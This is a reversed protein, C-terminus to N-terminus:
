LWHLESPTLLGLDTTSIFRQITYCNFCKLCWGQSIRCASTNCIIPPPTQTSLVPTAPTSALTPYIWPKSTKTPTLAPYTLPKSTKTSALTSYTSPKSTKTSALTPNTWPKPTNTSALTPYTWPKSTKMSAQTPYTWPKSTKTWPNQERGTTKQVKSTPTPEAVALYFSVFYLQKKYIYTTRFFDQLGVYNLPM